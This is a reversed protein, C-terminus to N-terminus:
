VSLLDLSAPQCSRRENPPLVIRFAPDTLVPFYVLVAPFFKRDYPPLFQPEEPLFFSGFGRLAVSPSFVALTNDSRASSLWEFLTPRFRLRFHHAPQYQQFFLFPAATLLPAHFLSPLTSFILFYSGSTQPLWQRLSNSLSTIPYEKSFSIM